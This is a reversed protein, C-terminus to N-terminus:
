DSLASAPTGPDAGRAPAGRLYDPSVTLVASRALQPRGAPPSREVGRANLGIAGSRVQPLHQRPKCGFCRRAGVCAAGHGHDALSRTTCSCTQEGKTLHMQAVPDLDSSHLLDCPVFFSYAARRPWPGLGLRSSWSKPVQLVRIRSKARHPQGAGRRDRPPLSSQNSM